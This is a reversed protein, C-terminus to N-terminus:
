TYFFSLDVNQHWRVNRHYLADETVAPQEFRTGLNGDGRSLAYVACEGCELNGHARPHPLFPSHRLVHRARVLPIPAKPEAGFSRRL